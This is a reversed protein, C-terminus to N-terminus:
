SFDGNRLVDLAMAKLGMDVDTIFNERVVLSPVAEALITELLYQHVDELVEADINSGSFAIMSPNLISCLVRTTRRLYWQFAGQPIEKWDLEFPLQGVEGALNNAGLLVEDGILIGAGPPYAPPFYLYVCCPTPESSWVSLGKVAANVDNSCFVPLSTADQLETVLAVGNLKGYDGTTVTGEKVVSPLVLGIAQAQPYADLATDVLSRLLPMDVDDAVVSSSSTTEGLLNVVSTVVNSKGGAVISANLLIAVASEPNYSYISSPRGLSSSEKLTEQLLGMREMDQLIKGITVLSLGTAMAIQRVSMGDTGLLVDRVRKLHSQRFTTDM